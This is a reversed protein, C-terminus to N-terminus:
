VTVYSPQMAIGCIGDSDTSNTRLIKVYGNDGWDSGWSNKVLWYLSGNEEGYGVILVGHDLDTGCSTDTIVGGSYFQFIRTDAEIAISVPQNSVAEQLHMENNPTVDICEKVFCKQKVNQCLHVDNMNLKMHFQKRLVYDMILQLSFLVIWKEVLVRLIEM